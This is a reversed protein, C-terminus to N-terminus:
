GKKIKEDIHTAAEGVSDASKQIKKHLDPDKVYKEATKKITDLSTKVQDLQKKVFEANEKSM